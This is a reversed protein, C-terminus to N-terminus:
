VKRLIAFVIGAGALVILAGAIWTGINSASQGAADLEGQLDAVDIAAFAPVAAVSTAAVICGNRFLTKLQQM